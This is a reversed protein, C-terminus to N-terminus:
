RAFRIKFFGIKFLEFVFRGVAVVVAVVVVVVVVVTLEVAVIETGVAARM